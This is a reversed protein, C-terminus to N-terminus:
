KVHTLIISLIDAHGQLTEILKQGFEESQKKDNIMIQEVDTGKIDADKLNQRRTEVACFIGVLFFM